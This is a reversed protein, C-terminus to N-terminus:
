RRSAIHTGCQWPISVFGRTFRSDEIVEPGNPFERFLLGRFVFFDIIIILSILTVSNSHHLDFYERPSQAYESTAM